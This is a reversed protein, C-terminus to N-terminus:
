NFNLVSQGISINSLSDNININQFQDKNTIIIPIQTSYNAKKIKELNFKILPQGVKFKDNVEVLTKFHKGNLKVTDLGIHILLEVGDNSKLGIAHKTDFIMTVEGNFPAHIIGSRPEIAFGVGMTGSAFTKDSCDQLKIFDGDIPSRIEHLQALHEYEHELKAKKDFLFRVKQMGANYSKVFNSNQFKNYQLSLNTKFQNIARNFKTDKNKSEKSFLLSLGLTVGMTIAMGIAMWAVNLMTFDGLHPYQELPFQNFDPSIGGIVYLLGPSGVGLFVATQMFGMFWGGCFAGIMASFFAKKNRMNIGFMAPETIGFLAVAGSSYGLARTKADKARIAVGIAAMGQALNSALMALSLMDFGNTMTNTIIVPILAQHVGTIVLPAFLFALLGIGFGYANKHTLYGSLIGLGEEIYGMIPGFLLVCFLIASTITIGSVFFMKINDNLKKNLFKEVISGIKITILGAFISTAYPLSGTISMNYYAWGPILTGLVPGAVLFLGVALANYISVKWYKAASICIFVVLFNTCLVGIQKFLTYWNNNQINLNFGQTCIVDIITIIATIMALGVMVNLCPMITSPFIKLTSMIFNQKKVPTKMKGTIGSVEKFANYYEPVSLGFIVQLQGSNFFCGQVGEIKDIEKADYAKKDKLELRLRTACHTVNIVNDKGGVAELLKLAIENKSAM